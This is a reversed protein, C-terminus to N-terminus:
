SEAIKFNVQGPLAMNLHTFFETKFTCKILPDAEQPSSIGLSFWDDKLRSLGIFRIAGVPITRESSISLQNNALAQVVIYVNRNSQGCSDIIWTAYLVNRVLILLRPSPKSSRGFKTVLLECRFSYLIRESGLMM